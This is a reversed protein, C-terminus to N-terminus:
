EVTIGNLAAQEAPTFVRPDSDSQKSMASAVLRVSQPYRSTIEDDVSYSPKAVALSRYFSVSPDGSMLSGTTFINKTEPSASTLNSISRIPTTSGSPQWPSVNWNPDIKSFSSTVDSFLGGSGGIQAPTARVNINRSLTSVSSPNMMSVAGTGIHDVMSAVTTYDGRALAGPLATSAMRKLVEGKNVIDTSAKVAGAVVNFSNSIGVASARDVLSGYISGLAGNPSVLVSATGTVANLTNAISRVDKLNGHQITKIIGNIQTYAATAKKVTSTIGKITGLTSKATDRIGSLLSKAKSMSDPLASDISDSGSSFARNPDVMKQNSIYKNLFGFQGELDTTTGTLDQYSNVVSTDTKKYVDEVVTEQDPTRSFISSALQPPSAM